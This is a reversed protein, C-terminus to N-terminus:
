YCIGSGDTLPQCMTGSPCTDEAPTCMEFCRSQPDVWMAAPTCWHNQDGGCFDMEPSCGTPANDYDYCIGFPNSEGIYPAIDFCAIDGDCWALDCAVFCRTTPLGTSTEDGICRDDGKDICVQDDTCESCYTGDVPWGYETSFPLCFPLSPPCDSDRKCNGEPVASCICTDSGADPHFDCYGFFYEPDTACEDNCNTLEWESTDPNCYCLNDDDDCYQIDAKVVPDCAGSCTEPPECLCYDRTVDEITTEGCGTSEMDDIACIDECSYEQWEAGDYIEVDGAETCRSDGETPTDTDGDTTDCTCGATPDGTCGTNCVCGAATCTANDGCAPDCTGGCDCGSLPDGTCGTNCVCGTATCTANNGCAPDCTLGCDCGTLPNGPCNPKCVCGYDTCIANAGCAPDCTPGEEGGSDEDEMCATTMGLTLLMAFLILLAKKTM